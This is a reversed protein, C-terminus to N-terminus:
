RIKKDDFRFDTQPEEGIRYVVWDHEPKMDWIFFDGFDKIETGFKELKQIQAQVLKTQDDTELPSTGSDGKAFCDMRRIHEGYKLQWDLDFALKIRGDQPVPLSKPEIDPWPVPPEYPLFPPKKGSPSCTIGDETEETTQGEPLGSVSHFRRM